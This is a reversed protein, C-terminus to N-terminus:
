SKFLGASLGFTGYLALSSISESRSMNAAKMSWKAMYLNTAVRFNVSGGMLCVCFMLFIGIGFQKIYYSYLGRLIKGARFHEEEILTTKQCEKKINTSNEMETEDSKTSSVKSTLSTSSENRFDSYSGCFSITGGKLCIILDFHQLFTTSNVAM